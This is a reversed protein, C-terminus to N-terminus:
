SALTTTEIFLRFRAQITLLTLLYAFFWALITFALPIVLDYGRLLSYGWLGLTIVALSLRMQTLSLQFNVEAIYLSTTDKMALTIRGFSINKLPHKGRHRPAPKFEVAGDEDSLRVEAGLSQLTEILRERLVAKTINNKVLVRGSIDYM